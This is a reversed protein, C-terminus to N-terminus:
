SPIDGPSGAGGEAAEQKQQALQALQAERRGRGDATSNSAVRIGTWSETAHVHLRRTSLVKTRFVLLM